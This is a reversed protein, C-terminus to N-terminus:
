LTNVPNKHSLIPDLPLINNFYLFILHRPEFVLLLNSVQGSSPAREENICLILLNDSSEQRVAVLRKL